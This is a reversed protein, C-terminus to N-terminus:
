ILTKERWSLVPDDNEGKKIVVFKNNLLPNTFTYDIRKHNGRTERRERATYCILKGVLLLDFSELTRMLEHANKCKIQALASKELDNLYKLGCTLLNESRPHNMGTYDQMIQQLAFNFEKWNAGEEREMFSSCLEAYEKVHPDNALDIENDTLSAAYAAASEGAVRGTVAAGGIEARCNGLDDGAAFLGPVNTACKNNIQIGRGVLMPNYQTFEVMDKHLDVNQKDMAELLSTDGECVFAWKMYEHDEEPTETCNMFVPGTGNEVKENYVDFWIDGTIDNLDRTAKKVFPGVPEGIQDTLVGIWTAKGGREMYKPGAHLGPIDLNVLEAGARYAAARGSGTNSPCNVQNFMMGGVISPYLRLTAGTATIISKTKFIRLEPEVTSVDLAIAGIIKGEDDNIYDVVPCHNIIEVHRKKAEKTLVAKQNSGDYKLFCGPRGPFAHGKFEYSGHPKMNIGWKHWDAVVEASRSALMKFNSLDSWGGDMSKDFEKVWDDISMNKHEESEPIYCVFHDNGTAGSGSRLTNSKDCLIVKAGADSASIGAMLGAIGGGVIFVDCTKIEPNIKIM